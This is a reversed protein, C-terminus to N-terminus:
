CDEPAQVGAARTARERSRNAADNVIGFLRRENIGLPARMFSMM